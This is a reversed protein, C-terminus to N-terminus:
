GQGATFAGPFWARAATSMSDAQELAQLCEAQAQAAFAAPDAATMCGLGARVMDMAEAVSAPAPVSM